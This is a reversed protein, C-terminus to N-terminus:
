QNYCVKQHGCHHIKFHGNTSTTSFVNDSTCCWKFSNTIGPGAQGMSCPQSSGSVDWVYWNGATVGGVRLSNSISWDSQLLPLNPSELSRVPIKTDLNYFRVKGIKEAVM